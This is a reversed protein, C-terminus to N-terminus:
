PMCQTANARRLPPAGFKMITGSQGGKSAMVHNATGMAFAYQRNVSANETCNEPSDFKHPM